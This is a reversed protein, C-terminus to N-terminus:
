GYVFRVVVGLWPLWGPDLDIAARRLEVSVEDLPLHVELWGPDFVIEARRRCVFDLLEDTPVDAQALQEALREEIRARTEGLAALEADTQPREDYGPPEADPPLGAFALAAPDDPALPALTLALRHLTWRLPRRALPATRCADGPIDLEDLLGLLFLLGGYDTVARAAVVETAEGAEASPEEGVAPGAPEAGARAEMETSVRAPLRDDPAEARRIEQSLERALHAVVEVARGTPAAGVAGPDAELWALAALAAATDTSLPEVGGAARSISSTRVVHEAVAVAVPSPVPTVEPLASPVAADRPALGRQLTGDVIGASAGAVALAAHALELWEAPSLLRLLPPLAGARAVHTLVAVIGAPESALALALESARGRADPADPGRWIGLQRWAWVRELRGDAVGLALEALAVHRSRYRAVDTGGSSVAAAIADAIAASWTDAAGTEGADLRLRVPARVARLCIEEGVPVGRRVLAAELADDLVRDLVADLRRRVEQDAAPVRYRVRM